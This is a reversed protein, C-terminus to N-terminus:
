TGSSRIPLSSLSNLLKWSIASLMDWFITVFLKYLRLFMSSHSTPQIVRLRGCPTNFSLHIIRTLRCSCPLPLSLISLNGSCSTSSFDAPAILCKSDDCVKLQQIGVDDPLLGGFILPLAEAESVAKEPMTLLLFRIDRHLRPFPFRTALEIAIAPDQWWATRVLPLLASETASKSTNQVPFQNGPGNLPNVWVILRAQENEVLLQLLQEKAQLSKVNGVSHAGIFSVVKLAALVDSLLRIETKLQLISSGFSWRPSYRFWSLGASLIKEKLRWQAAPKLTTSSRLVKLGFLIIQFKIERAMPHSVSQKVADLTLDIMRAFVRQTDPNGYRIANFHSAFFQLLRTHPSLIDHVLQKKKALADLDSPAFEEKQFFPDIHTLAPSFLGVRRGLTFEWQQVIENLLRSELKPNENIVGLWLSVGLKISQKTFLAFPISVLYHAIASDDKESRCLLAAARRLIDRVETISTSKKSLIRAEVHALATTANASEKVSSQVFSLRRNHNMFSLLETGRDPLTEGYRYEQRTTYQAVFDSATNVGSDGIKDLSQLRNDTSPIISGLELAFSRGLSIHGYAGEDDFESLYTQLLGKVDLPALNIAANVWVKAKRQLINVTWRRFDYDDSLQVTVNGLDSTFISRPDYLDTEAELCSSWMLSLLELLAFLSSRHCLASPIERLIRDACVFAAQQVREIRHCCGCFMTALQEAAYQASFTLDTGSQTKRVYKEIVAAAVGEMTSRVESKQMSPELFYSLVKTCDGGEARLSEMLYAAQIFMTKRYSLSKIESSKSPILDILAKKQASERDNSNGRRLVTNLEIDSEVQEGRQEAVLPPSHIAIMRLQPLYQKGRNTNATFGHVVINFWADRLLGYAEDNAIPEAAFDNSSMFVALPHLLEAIERAALQVDSEKAHNSSHADGLGIISDLLHELYIDFLPSERRLNTSIITRAKM